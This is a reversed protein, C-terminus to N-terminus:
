PAPPKLAAAFFDSLRAEYEAPRRLIAEVHGAGPVIWPEITRGTARLAEALETAYGVWLRRDDTGHTIAFARGGLSRVAAIPSKSTLDVGGVIRAALIGAPELVLPHGRIALEQYIAEEVDAYGSDEWTAAVRREEGMAIMVTAAGLSEGWLGIRGPPVGQAVLWDWAGLVDRYEKVGGAYHGDDRDSQGHNRLDIQLAGFGHRHLMGAALLVRDQRRCDGLGHVVIVTPGLRGSAAPVLWGRITPSDARARFSVERYDPMAYRTGDTREAHPLPDVTFAAPTNGAFHTECSSAIATVNLYVVWGAVLYTAALAVVGVVAVLALRGAV